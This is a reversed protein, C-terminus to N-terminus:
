RVLFHRASARRGYRRVTRTQDATQVARDLEAPDYEFDEDLQWAARRHTARDMTKLWSNKEVRAGQAGVETKTRYVDYSVNVGDAVAQAHGYEIALNQNFFGFTQKNPTATLGILHADFYGLMQRRLTCISRHAAHIDADVMGCVHWGAATLLADITQRARAEPTM